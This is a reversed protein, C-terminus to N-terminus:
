LLDDICYLWPYLQSYECSYNWSFWDWWSMSWSGTFSHLDWSLELRFLDMFFGYV